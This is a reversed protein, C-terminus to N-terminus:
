SITQTNSGNPHHENNKLKRLIIVDHTVEKGFITFKLTTQGLCGLDNGGADTLNLGIPSIYPRKGPPFLSKFTALSLCTRSAGTDFLWNSTIGGIICNIRPRYTSSKNIVSFISCIQLLFASIANTPTKNWISKEVPVGSHLEKPGKM